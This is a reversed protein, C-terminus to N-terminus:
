IYKHYETGNKTRVARLVENRQKTKSKSYSIHVWDPNTDTGFEYIMQDFDVNNLLWHFIQYNTTGYYGDMDIDVAEGKCHQSTSAGNIAKNLEKGRYGSSIKIPMNLHKRLPELINICLAKANEKHEETMSNNLGLRKATQSREFEWVSFHESLKEM